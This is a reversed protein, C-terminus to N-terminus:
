IIYIYIDDSIVVVLCEQGQQKCLDKYRISSNFRSGRAASGRETAIGELIVGIAHCTGDTDSIFAGDIASLAKVLPPSLLLPKIPTAQKILRTAEVAANKHFVLTTGHKQGIATDIILWMAALDNQSLAGLADNAKKEFAARKL